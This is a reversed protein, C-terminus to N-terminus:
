VIFIRSYEGTKHGDKIESFFVVVIITIHTDITVKAVAARTIIDRDYLYPKM